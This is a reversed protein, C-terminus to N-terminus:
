SCRVVTEALPLKIFDHAAVAGNGARGDAARHLVGGVALEGGGDLGKDGGDREDLLALHCSVVTTSYENGRQLVGELPDFILAISLSLHASFSGSRWTMTVPHGMPVIM